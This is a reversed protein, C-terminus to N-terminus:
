TSDEIAPAKTTDRQAPERSAGRLSREWAWRQAGPGADDLWVDRRSPDVRMDADLHSLVVHTRARRRSFGGAGPSAYRDFAAMLARADGFPSWAYIYELHAVDRSVCQWEGTGLAKRFEVLPCLTNGREARSLRQAFEASAQMVKSYMAVCRTEATECLKVYTGALRLASAKEGQGYNHADSKGLSCGFKMAAYLAERSALGPGDDSVVLTWAGHGSRAAECRVVVRVARPLGFGAEFPNDLVDRWASQLSAHTTQVINLVQM